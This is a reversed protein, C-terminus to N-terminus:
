PETPAVPVFSRVPIATVIVRYSNDRNDCTIFSYLTDVRPRIENYDRSTSISYSLLNDRYNAFDNNSSFSFTRIQESGSIRLCAIARLEYTCEPTLIYISKHDILYQQNMYLYMDSFMSGDRMNHGYIFNNKANLSGSGASDVFIAGSSNARRDALHTLYFTNDSGQVIPYNVRTGPIIIWGVTDSNIAKLGEWDVVTEEITLEKPVQEPGLTPFSFMSDSQVPLTVFGSMERYSNQAIRYQYILLGGITLASVLLLSGVILLARSIFLDKKSPKAKGSPRRANGISRGAKGTLRGNNSSSPRSIGSSPRSIGSSPRSNSAALRRRAGSSRSSSKVSHNENDSPSSSEPISPLTEEGIPREVPTSSSDDEDVELLDDDLAEPEINNIRQGEPM